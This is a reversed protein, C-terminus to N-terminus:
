RAQLAATFCCVHIVGERFLYVHQHKNTIRAFDQPTSECLPPECFSTASTQAEKTRCTFDSASEM